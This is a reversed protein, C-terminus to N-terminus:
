AVSFGFINAITPPDLPYFCGTQLHQTDIAHRKDHKHFFISSPQPM